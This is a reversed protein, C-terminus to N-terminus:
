DAFRLKKRLPSIYKWIGMERGIRGAVIGPDIDLSNAFNIILNRYNTKNITEKLAQYEKENDAPILVRQAFLNAEKELESVDTNALGEFEIFTEKKSHKLIHGLEHFLTFWFIDAYAYYLSVQILAKNPSLWQAAGNVCTKKLHPTYTLAVGAEACLEILAQSYTVVPEKTLARMKEINRLLLERNFDATERKQAQITGMRLWAALAEDSIRNIQTRRFAVPFVTKVSYLSNVGFFKLLEEVKKLSDRTAQVFGLKALETYCDYKSLLATEKELREKEELRFKDAEYYAQLSLLIKRSIGLAREFKLASEPTIPQNGNLIFSITKESLGTRTALDSQSMGVFELTEKLTEGPHVALPSVYGKNKIDVM